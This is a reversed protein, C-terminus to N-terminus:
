TWWMYKGCRQGGYLWTCNCGVIDESVLYYCGGGNLCCKKQQNGCISETKIESHHGVKKDSNVQYICLGLAALLLFAFNIVIEIECM